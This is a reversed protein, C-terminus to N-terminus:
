GTCCHLNASFSGKRNIFSGKSGLRFLLDRFGILILFNKENNVYKINKKSFYEWGYKMADEWIPNYMKLYRSSKMIDVAYVNLYDCNVREAAKMVGILSGTNSTEAAHVMEFFLKTKSSWKKFLVSRNIEKDFYSGEKLGNQGVYMGNDVVCQGIEEFNDEKQLSGANLTILCPVNTFISATEKIWGKITELWLENSYSRGDSAQAKEYVARFEPYHRDISGFRYPNTEAGPTVDIFLVDPNNGYKEYVARQFNM